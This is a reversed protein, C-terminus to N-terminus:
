IWKNIMEQLIPITYPKALYDNMGADLCKERDDKMAFATLGIIILDKMQENQRIVRTTDYGDLVPMQCDMFIIDYTKQKLKELVVEGNEAIDCKYGMRQFQTVVVKQNIANDEALLIKETKLVVSKIPDKPSPKQIAAQPFCDLYQFKATFWFTSGQNPHSKIGISGDMLEVIQKCIALGLGTGGFRRTTSSEVQSFPQFLLNQAELAIGIGTDEIGFYLQITCEEENEQGVASNAVFEQIIIKVSGTFTFKIANGILNILIQKLRGSDGLYKNPIGKAIDVFIKLKKEQAAVEFLSLLDRIVNQLSFEISELEVKGSELKSLDLIDNILNLLSNGSSRIIDVYDQHQENLNDLSLIEAMGLIGNMPTRIEHSM